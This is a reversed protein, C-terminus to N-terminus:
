QAVTAKTATVGSVTPPAGTAIIVKKSTSAGFENSVVVDYAGAETAVYTGLDLTAATQGAIPTGDKRWVFTFPQTGSATATLKITQNTGVAVSIDTTSATQAYASVALILYTAILKM